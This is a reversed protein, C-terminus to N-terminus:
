PKVEDDPAATSVDPPPLKLKDYARRGYVIVDAGLKAKAIIWDALSPVVLMGLLAICAFFVTRATSPTARHMEVHVNTGGFYILALGALLKGLFAALKTLM